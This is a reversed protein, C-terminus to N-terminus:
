DAKSKQNNGIFYLGFGIIVFVLIQILLTPTDINDIISNTKMSGFKGWIPGYSRETYHLYPPFLISLLIGGGGLIVGIKKLSM